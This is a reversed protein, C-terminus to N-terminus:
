FLFRDIIVLALVTSKKVSYAYHGKMQVRQFVNGHYTVISCINLFSSCGKTIFGFIGYLGVSKSPGLRKTAKLIDLESIPLLQLFDSSSIGSHYGM